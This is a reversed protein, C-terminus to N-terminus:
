RIQNIALADIELWQIHPLPLTGWSFQGTPTLAMFQNDLWCVFGLRGRPSHSTQHVTQGDVQFTVGDRLWSLEYRHWGRMDFPEPQNLPAYSMGLQNQIRPWITRRFRPWRNLLLVFPALPALRLARWSGADLTAAFWGRGPGHPNLPLDGPDSGFFFWAARPLAPIKLTPDGFPANWFGFGATGLLSKEDHSFRARLTLRTGARWIYDRRPLAGYDDIQADAYGNQLPSLSLRQPPDATVQGGNLTLIRWPHSPHPFQILM